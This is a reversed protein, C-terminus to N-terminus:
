SESPTRPTVAPPPQPAVSATAAQNHVGIASQLSEAMRYPRDKGNNAEQLVGGGCV